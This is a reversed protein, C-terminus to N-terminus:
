QLLDNIKSSSPDSFLIFQPQEQPSIGILDVWADPPSDLDPLADGPIHFSKVSVDPLCALSLSLAPGGEVEVPLGNTNMGIIGSGGCGILVPLSLREQLLPILRPYESAYASSIFVLGLDAKSPLSKELCDAVEAVAAELSARTSLANAWKIVNAM